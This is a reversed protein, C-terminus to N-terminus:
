CSCWKSTTVSCHAWKLSAMILSSSRNNNTMNVHAGNQLLLLVTGTYGNQGALMLSTIEDKNPLNVLKNRCKDTNLLLQAIETHGKECACTCMLAHMSAMMMKCTGPIKLLAEVYNVDGLYCAVMLQSLQMRLQVPVLSNIHSSNAM